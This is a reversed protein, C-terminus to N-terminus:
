MTADHCKVKYVHLIDHCHVIIFTEGQVLLLHIYSHVDYSNTQLTAM